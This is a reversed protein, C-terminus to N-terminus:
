TATAILGAGIFALVVGVYGVPLLNEGLFVLGCFTPVFVDLSMLPIFASAEALSGLRVLSFWGVMGLLQAAAMIAQGQLWAAFDTDGGAASESASAVVRAVHAVLAVVVAAVGFGVSTFTVVPLIHLARAGANVYASAGDSLGWLGATGLFLAIKLVLTGAAEQSDGGRSADAASPAAPEGGMGLLVAAVICAGIGALKRWSKSEKKVANCASL